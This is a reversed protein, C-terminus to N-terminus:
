ADPSKLEKRYVQAWFGYVGLRKSFDGDENWTPKWAEWELGDKRSVM